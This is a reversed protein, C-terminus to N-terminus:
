QGGPTLTCTQSIKQKNIAAISIQQVFRQEIMHLYYLIDAMWWTQFVIMFLLRLSKAMQARAGDEDQKVSKLLGGLSFSLGFRCQIIHGLM